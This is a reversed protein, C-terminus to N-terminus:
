RIPNPTEALCDALEGELWEYKEAIRSDTFQSGKERVAAPAAEFSKYLASIIDSDPRMSLTSDTILYRFATGLSMHSYEGDKNFLSAM